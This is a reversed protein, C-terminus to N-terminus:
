KRKRLRQRAGSRSTDRHAPQASRKGSAAESRKGRRAQERGQALTLLISQPASLANQALAHLPTIAIWYGDHYLAETLKVGRSQSEGTFCADHTYGRKAVSLVKTVTAQHWSATNSSIKTFLMFDEIANGPEWSIQQFGPPFKPPPDDGEM